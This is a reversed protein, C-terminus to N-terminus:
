VPAAAGIVRLRLPAPKRRRDRTSVGPTFLKAGPVFRCNFAVPVKVSPLVCSRVAKTVQDEEVGTLAVILAPKTEAKAAPVLVIVAVEPAMVTVAPTVTVDAIRWDIATVGAAEEKGRPINRCNWATPVKESEEVCSMVWDTAQVAEGAAM